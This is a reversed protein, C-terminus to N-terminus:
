SEAFVMETKSYILNKFRNKYTEVIERVDQRELPNDQHLLEARCYRFENETSWGDPTLKLRSFAANEMFRAEAPSLKQKLALQIAGWVNKQHGALYVVGDSIGRAHRELSSYGRSACQAYSEADEALRVYPDFYYAMYREDQKSGLIEVKIKGEASGNDVELFDRDDIILGSYNTMDAIIISHEITRRAPSRLILDFKIKERQFYLGQLVVKEIGVRSLPTDLNRGGIILDGVNNENHVSQGHRSIYAQVVM